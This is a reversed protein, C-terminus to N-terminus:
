RSVVEFNTGRGGPQSRQNVDGVGAGVGAEGGADVGAEVGSGVDDGPLGHCRM